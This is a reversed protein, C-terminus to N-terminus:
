GAGHRGTHGAASGTTGTFLAITGPSLTEYPPPVFYRAYGIHLTTGSVPKWVLNVRPSVQSEHTFEEVADFRLGYNLTLASTLRWEDQAYLGYLTGSNRQNSFITLPQDSTQAGTADVPLVSSTTNATAQEVQALFGVRLTHQENIRWSGDSQVGSAVDQRRGTARHRQVASRRDFRASFEAPQHSQVVVGAM